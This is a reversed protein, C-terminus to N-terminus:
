NPTHKARRVTFAFKAVTRTEIRCLQIQSPATIDICVFGFLRYIDTNRIRFMPLFVFFFVIFCVKVEEASLLPRLAHHLVEERGYRTLQSPPVESCCCCFDKFLLLLLVRFLLLLVWVIAVFLKWLLFIVKLEINGLSTGYARHKIKSGLLLSVFGFGGCIAM